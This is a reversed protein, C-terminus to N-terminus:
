ALKRGSLRELVRLPSGPEHRLLAVPVLFTQELQYQGRMVAHSVQDTLALWTSGAPFEFEIQEVERQYRDDAKMCDHLRHMIYDYETRRSKTIHLLQLVAGSGPLPRKISPLFRAAMQEFPEGVRWVRSRGNPNVNTFVRLIRKGSTPSTPFSDVHLRTDDKRWSSVRGEIEVPRFSTRARILGSEYSSVLRLVLHQAFDAFRAIMKRLLESNPGSAVTGRLEGTRPDYSVNKSGAIIEPSFITREDDAVVFRYRPLFLVKGSELGGIARDQLDASLSVQEPELDIHEIRSM